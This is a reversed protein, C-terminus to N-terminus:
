RKLRCCDEKPPALKIPPSLKMGFGFTVGFGTNKNLKLEFTQQRLEAKIETGMASPKVEDSSVRKSVMKYNLNNM